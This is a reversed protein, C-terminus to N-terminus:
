PLTIRCTERLGSADQLILLMPGQLSGHDLGLLKGDQALLDQTRLMAGDMRMWRAKVAGSLKTKAFSGLVTSVTNQLTIEGQGVTTGSVNIAQIVVDWDKFEGLKNLDITVQQQTLVTDILVFSPDVKSVIIVRIQDAGQVLDKLELVAQSGDVKLKSQLDGLDALVPESPVTVFRLTDSTASDRNSARLILTYETQTKLSNLEASTDQLGNLKVILATDQYLELSYQSANLVQNWAIIPDLSVSKSGATPNQIRIQGLPIKVANITVVFTDRVSVAGDTYRVILTDVGAQFALSEAVLSDGQVSWTSLNRKSQVFALVLDGDVDAVKSKWELSKRGFDQTWTQDVLATQIQPADNRPQVTVFLTDQISQGIIDTATILLTDQGYLDNVSSLRLTDTSQVAQLAQDKSVLTYTLLMGNPDTFYTSLNWERMGFDESVVLRGLKKAIMPTNKIIDATLGTPQSVTYNSAKSGSLVYGSVSVSKNVGVASDAFLALVTGNVAVEAEDGAVLGVLQANGSLTALRTGDYIKDDALL